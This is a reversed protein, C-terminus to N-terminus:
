QGIEPDCVIGASTARTDGGANAPPSVPAVAGSQTIPAIQPDPGHGTDRTGYATEPDLGTAYGELVRPDNLRYLNVLKILEASYSPNTSYGCHETDLQSTKPGLREAFQQWCPIRSVPNPLRSEADSPNGTDRVGFGSDRIARMAPAYRPSTALLLAHCRFAEGLNPFRQFQAIMVRKQGNEIEWTTADFHRYDEPKPALHPLNPASIGTSPGPQQLSPAPSGPNPIQFKSDEKGLGSDRSGHGSDLNELGSNGTGAKSTGYAPSGPRPSPTEPLTDRVGFGSDRIGFHCYKIGFPNNALRFLTSSGWGFKPTASELIAQAITVCAPIEYARQSELAAPTVRLLFQLQQPTLPPSPASVRLDFNSARPAMQASELKSNGNEIKTNQKNDTVEPLPLTHV